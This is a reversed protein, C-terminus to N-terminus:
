RARAKAGYSTDVGAEQLLVWARRVSLDMEDAVGRVTGHKEYAKKAQSRLKPEYNPHREPM